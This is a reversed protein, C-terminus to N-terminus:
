TDRSWVGNTELKSDVNMIEHGGQGMIYVNFAGKM